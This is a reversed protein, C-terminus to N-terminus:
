IASLIALTERIHEDSTEEIDVFPVGMVITLYEQGNKIALTAWCLGAEGTTGSKGGLITFGSQEYTHLKNLVTSVIEVGQPHMETLSSRYFETTFLTRFNTDKLALCLLSAIDEGSSYHNDQDLGEVNMFHTNKLGLSLNFDNLQNVFNEESGAINIALSNACEGGSALMTGYLLDRYTTKEEGYFGAVSSNLDVMKLYSASDIPAIEDLNSIKQLAYYITFLKTLSAPAVRMFGNVEYILKNESLNYVYVVKGPYQSTIEALRRQKQKELEKEEEKIESTSNNESTVNTTNTNLLHNLNGDIFNLAGVKFLLFFLSMLLILKFSKRLRRRKRRKPM